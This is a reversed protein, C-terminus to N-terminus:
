SGLVTEPAIYPPSGLVEFGARTLKENGLVDSTPDIVKAVGFDLLKVHDDDRQGGDALMINDPKIDRHIIGKAHAEELSACAQELLYVAREPQV